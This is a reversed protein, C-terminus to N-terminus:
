RRLTTGDSIGGDHGDAARCTCATAARVKASYWLLWWADPDGYSVQSEV